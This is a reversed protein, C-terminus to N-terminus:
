LARTNKMDIMAAKGVLAKGMDVADELGLVVVTETPQHKDLNLVVRKEKDTLLLRVGWNQLAIADPRALEDILGRQEALKPLLKNQEEYAKVVLWIFDKAAFELKVPKSNRIASIAATNSLPDITIAEIKNLKITDSV